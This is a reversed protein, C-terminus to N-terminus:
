RVSRISTPFANAAFMSVSKRWEELWGVFMMRELYARKKDVTGDYQDTNRTPLSPPVFDIDLNLNIKSFQLHLCLGVKSFTLCPSTFQKCDCDQHSCGKRHRCRKPQPKILDKNMCIDCPEFVTSLPDMSLNLDAPLTLGRVSLIGFITNMFTFFYKRCDFIGKKEGVQPQLLINKLSNCAFTQKAPM